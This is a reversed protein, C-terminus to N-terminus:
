AGGRADQESRAVATGDDGLAGLFFARLVAVTESKGRNLMTRLPAQLSLSCSGLAFAVPIMPLM